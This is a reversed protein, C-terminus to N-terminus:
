EGERNARGDDAARSLYVEQDRRLHSLTDSFYSNNIADSGWLTSDRHAVYLAMARFRNAMVFLPIAALDSAAMSRISQYGTLFSEWSTSPLTLRAIALDYAYWGEGCHDFDFVTLRGHESVRTNKRQFDGHCMGWQLVGLPILQLAERLWAATTSLTAWNEPHCALVPELTRLPVDLILSSDYAFRPHSPKFAEGTDHIRALTQGLSHMEVQNDASPEHGGVFEFLTLARKGEPADVLSVYRGELDQVPCAISIGRADLYQLFELEGRVEAETRWGSRYARIVHRKQEGDLLYTDNVGVYLLHCTMSDIAYHRKAWTLLASASLLSYVVPFMACARILRSRRIM